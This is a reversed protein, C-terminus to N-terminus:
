NCTKSKHFRSVESQLKRVEEQLVKDSAPAEGPLEEPDDIFADEECSEDLEAPAVIRSFVRIIHKGRQKNRLM